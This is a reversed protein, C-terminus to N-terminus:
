LHRRNIDALDRKILTIYSGVVFIVVGILMFTFVYFLSPKEPNFVDLNALSLWSFPSVYDIVNGYALPAFHVAFYSMAAFVGSVIIGSTPAVVQNFFRILSGMFFCLVIMLSVSLLTMQIPAFKDMVVESTLFGIYAGTETRIDNRGEAFYYILPGWENSFDANPLYFIFTFIFRLVTYIISVVLIYLTEGLSVVTRGARMIIYQSFKDIDPLNAFLFIILANNILMSTSITTIFPFIYASMKANYYETAINIGRFEYFNFLVMLAVILIFKYSGLLKTLNIKFCFLIMQINHM